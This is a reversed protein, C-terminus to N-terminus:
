EGEFLGHALDDFTEQTWGYDKAEEAPPAAPRRQARRRTEEAERKARECEASTLRDRETDYTYETLAGRFDCLACKGCGARAYEAPVEHLRYMRTSMIEACAACLSTRVRTNKM